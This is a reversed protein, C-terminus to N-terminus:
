GVVWDDEEGVSGIATWAMRVRAVRTDGWTRFVMDFGAETVAEASIDARTVTTADIDWLSMSVQVHPPERFAESFTIRRRRERQGRGTWMPGDDEFDSFLMIEGSDLGITHSRLRKM